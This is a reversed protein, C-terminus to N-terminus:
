IFLDLQIQFNWLKKKISQPRTYLKNEWDDRTIVDNIIDDISTPPSILDCVLKLSSKVAM